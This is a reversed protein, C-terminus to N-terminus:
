CTLPGWVTPKHFCQSSDMHLVFTRFAALATESGDTEVAFTPAQVAARLMSPPLRLLSPVLIIGLLGVTLVLYGFHYPLLHIYSREEHGAFGVQFPVHYHM